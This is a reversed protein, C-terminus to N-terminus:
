DDVSMRGFGLERAQNITLLGSEGHYTILPQFERGTLEYEEDEGTFSHQLLTEGIVQLEEHLRNLAQGYGPTSTITRIDKDISGQHRPHSYEGMEGSLFSYIDVIGLDIYTPMGRFRESEQHGKPGFTGYFIGPRNNSKGNYHDDWFPMVESLQGTKYDWRRVKELEFNDLKLTRAKLDEVAERSPAVLKKGFIDVVTARALIYELPKILEPPKGIRGVVESDLLHRENKGLWHEYGPGSRAMLYDNKWKKEWQMYEHMAKVVRYRVKNLLRPWYKIREVDLCVPALSQTDPKGKRVIMDLFRSEYDSIRGRDRDKPSRHESLDQEARRVDNLMRQQEKTRKARGRKAVSTVYRKRTIQPSLLYQWYDATHLVARPKRKLDKGYTLAREARFLDLKILGKRIQEDIALRVLDIDYQEEDKLGDVLYYSDLEDAESIDLKLEKMTSVIRPMMWLLIHDSIMRDDLDVPTGDEQEKRLRRIASELTPRM